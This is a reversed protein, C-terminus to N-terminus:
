LLAFSFLFLRLTSFVTLWRTMWVTRDWSLTLYLRFHYVPFRHLSWIPTNMLNILKNLTFVPFIQLSLPAQSPKLTQPKSHFIRWPSSFVTLIQDGYSPHTLISYFIGPCSSVLQLQTILWNSWLILMKCVAQCM